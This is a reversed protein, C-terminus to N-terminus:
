PFINFLQAALKTFVDGFVLQLNRVFRVVRPQPFSDLVKTKV